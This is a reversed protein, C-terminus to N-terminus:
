RVDGKVNSTLNCRVLSCQGVSPEQPTGAVSFTLTAGAAVGLVGEITDTRSVLIPLKRHLRRNTGPWGNTVTSVTVATTTTSIGGYVGGYAPFMDISGEIQKKGAILLRFFTKSQMEMVEQQGMGYTNLVGEDDYWGSEFGVGIARISFDGLASGAEGAKTLNTSHVDHTLLHAATPAVGAGVLRPIAQGQPVTFLKQTGAGGFGVVISSYINEDRMDAKDDVATSSRNRADLLLLEGDM